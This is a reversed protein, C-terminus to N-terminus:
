LKPLLICFPASPYADCLIFTFKYLTSPAYAYRCSCHGGDCHSLFGLCHWPLGFSVSVSTDLLQVLLPCFIFFSCALLCPLSFLLSVLAFPRFYFAFFWTAHFIAFRSAIQFIFLPSACLSFFTCSFFFLSYLACLYIRSPLCHYLSLYGTNLFFYCLSLLLFKFSITPFSNLIKTYDLFISSLFFHPFFAFAPLVTIHWSIGKILCIFFFILM